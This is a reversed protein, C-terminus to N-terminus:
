RAASALSLDAAGGSRPSAEGAAIAPGPAAAFKKRAEEVWKQFAEKSVAEVAIPMFAHNVGCLESCQGYYVGERDIKFWTENLRGPVTDLKVGFAPMAWAHLVDESTVLLRINTDVPLVVRNDVELLRRQGPKLQDTPVMLSDFMFDGHDQYQYSWYWQHGIAKLTLEPKDTRDMFYLLRFSPIAIVVLILVPVVTWIVEIVTNHTTRSPMPNRKENFRVVVYVLLALVFLSIATIIVMLLDHLSEIGQMTPSAAPQFGLQWPQPEAAAALGPLFSAAVALLGAALKAPFPSLTM